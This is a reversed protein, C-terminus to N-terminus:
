AEPQYPNYTQEGLSTALRKVLVQLRGLYRAGIGGLLHFEAAVAELKAVERLRADGGVAEVRRM